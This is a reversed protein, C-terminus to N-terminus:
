FLAVVVGAGAGVIFGALLLSLACCVLFLVIFLGSCDTGIM